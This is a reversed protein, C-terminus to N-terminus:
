FMMPGYVPILRLVTDTNSSPSVLLTFWISNKFIFFYLPNLPYAVSKNFHFFSCLSFRFSSLSTGLFLLISIHSYLSFVLLSVDLKKINVTAALLFHSLIKLTSLSCTMMFNHPRWVGYNQSVDNLYILLFLSINSHVFAM